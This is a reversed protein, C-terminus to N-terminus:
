GTKWEFHIKKKKKREKETKREKEVKKKMKEGLKCRVKRRDTIQM